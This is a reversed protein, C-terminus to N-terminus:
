VLPRELIRELTRLPSLAPSAMANVPLYFTQEFAHQGSMAAHSVSDTYCAWVAGPAFELRAQPAGAQYETDAKMADHLGLMYHDYLSRRGKTIHLLAMAALAGPLPPSVRPLLKGAADQFPEGARWVRAASPNVNAFLRLIRKGYSPRSPFADVHLRTDDKRWSTARGSIEAPRFSTLGPTCQSAYTPCLARLLAIAHEAFRQMMAALEDREAGQCDTGGLTETEANYSINKSKASLYRTSLFKQEVPQLEFRLGQAFLIKGEELASTARATMDEPFPGAWGTVPVQELIEV